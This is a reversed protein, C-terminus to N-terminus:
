MGLHACAFSSACGSVVLRLWVCFVQRFKFVPTRLSVHTRASRGIHHARHPRDAPGRSWQPDGCAVAPSDWGRRKPIVAVSTPWLLTSSDSGVARDASCIASNTLRAASVTPRPASRLRRDALRALVAHLEGPESVDRRGPHLLPADGPGSEPEPQHRRVRRRGHRLDRRERSPVIRVRDPKWRPASPIGARPRSALHAAGPDGVRLAFAGPGHCADRVSEM